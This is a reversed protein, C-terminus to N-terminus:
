FKWKSLQSEKIMARCKSSLSAPITKSSRGRLASLRGTISHATGDRGEEM